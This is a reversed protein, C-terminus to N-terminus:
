YDYSKITLKIGKEFQVKPKFSLIKKLKNVNPYTILNEDKRLMLKGFQPKGGKCIDMVKFIIKKLNIPKGSGVNIIQGRVKNNTLCKYIISILDSIYIFDRFQKGHSTPFKKNKICNTILIPLFRNTDQDPGYAQYLRLITVPFKKKKFLNILFKSASLKARSYNSLMKMKCVLSEEHPSKLNGYEGGSSMQVFLQLKKKEFYNALNKAGIYHSEYTKKKNSHDVYGGLNVVYKFNYNILKKFNKKKGIDFQIYKIKKIFKKKQPLNKSVVVIKFNKKILFNSLHYGIFGTGGVILILNKKKV